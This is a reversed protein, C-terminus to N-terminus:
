CVSRAGLAEDEHIGIPGSDASHHVFTLCFAHEAIQTGYLGRCNTLIIDSAKFAPYMFGEVGAHPQHVWRLATAESIADEGLHGFCFRLM